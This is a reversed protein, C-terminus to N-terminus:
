FLCTDELDVWSSTHQPPLFPIQCGTQQDGGSLKTARRDWISNAMEGGTFVKGQSSPEEFLEASALQATLWSEEKERVEL